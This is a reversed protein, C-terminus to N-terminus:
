VVTTVLQLRTYAGEGRPKGYTNMRFLKSTIERTLASELCTLRSRCQCAYKEVRLSYCLLVLNDIFNLPFKAQPSASPHPREM